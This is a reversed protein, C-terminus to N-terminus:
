GTKMTERVHNSSVLNPISRCVGPPTHFTVCNMNTCCSRIRSNTELRMFRSSPCSMISYASSAASIEITAMAIMTRIPGYRLFRNWSTTFARFEAYSILGSHVRDIGCGDDGFPSGLAFLLQIVDDVMTISTEAADTM